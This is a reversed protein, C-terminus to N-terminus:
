MLVLLFVMIIWMRLTFIFGFKLQTMGFDLLSLVKINDDIYQLFSNLAYKNAHIDSIIAFKSAQEM